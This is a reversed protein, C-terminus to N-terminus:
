DFFKMGYAAIFLANATVKDVAVSTSGASGQAMKRWDGDVYRQYAEKTYWNYRIEIFHEVDNVDQRYAVTVLRAAIQYHPPNYEQVDISTLDLYTKYGQVNMIFYYDPDNDYDNANAASTM